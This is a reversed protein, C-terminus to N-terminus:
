LRNFFRGSGNRAKTGVLALPDLTLQRLIRYRYLEGASFFSQSPRFAVGKKELHLLFIDFEDRLARLSYGEAAQDAAPAMMWGIPMQIEPM